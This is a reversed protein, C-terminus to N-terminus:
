EYGMKRMTEGFAKRIRANMADDFHSKWDGKVGHRFLRSENKHKDFSQGEIAGKIRDHDYSLELNDLSVKLARSPNELLQEYTITWVPLKKTNMWENVFENWPGCRAISGKIMRNLFEAVSCKWYYAGSVCVDRPDRVIHIMVENTIEHESIRHPKSEQSLRYHGKRVIFPAPRDFGESALEKKDESPVSGGCPCNLVDAFLRTTWTTGSKPYGCLFITQM